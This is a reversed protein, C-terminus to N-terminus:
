IVADVYQLNMPACVSNCPSGELNWFLDVPSKSIRMETTGVFNDAGVNSISLRVLAGSDLM